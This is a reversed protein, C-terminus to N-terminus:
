RLGIEVFRLAALASALSARPTKDDLEIRQEIADVLVQEGGDGEFRSEIMDDLIGRWGQLDEEDLHQYDGANYRMTAREIKLALVVKVAEFEADKKVALLFKRREDESALIQKLGEAVM